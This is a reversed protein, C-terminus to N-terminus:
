LRIRLHKRGPKDPRGSSERNRNQDSFFSEPCSSSGTSPLISHYSDVPFRGYPLTPSPTPRIRQVSVHSRTEACVTRRGEGRIKEPRFIHRESRDRLYQPMALNRSRHAIQTHAQLFVSRNEGPAAAESQRGPSVVSRIGPIEDYWDDYVFSFASINLAKEHGPCSNIQSFM